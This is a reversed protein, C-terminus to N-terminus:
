VAITMQASTGPPPRTAACSAVVTTGVKHVDLKWYMPMSFRRHLQVKLDSLSAFPLINTKRDSGITVPTIDPVGAAPSRIRPSVIVCISPKDIRLTSPARLNLLM